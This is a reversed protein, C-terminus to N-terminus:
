SLIWKVFIEDHRLSFDKTIKTDFWELKPVQEATIAPLAEM